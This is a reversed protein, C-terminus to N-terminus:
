SNETANSKQRVMKISNQSMYSDGKQLKPAKSEEKMHIDASNTAM